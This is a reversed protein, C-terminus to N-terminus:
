TLFARDWTPLHLKCAPGCGQSHVLSFRGSKLARRVSRWMSGGRGRIPVGLTEAGPWSAVDGKFADFAEDDPALFTFCYGNEMLRPLYNLLYTRIGGLPNNAVVLVRRNHSVEAQKM